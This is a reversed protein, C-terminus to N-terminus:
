KLTEGKLGNQGSVGSKGSVGGFISCKVVMAEELDYSILLVNSITLTYHNM